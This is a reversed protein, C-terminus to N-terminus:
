RPVRDDMQVHHMVSEDGTTWTAWFRFRDMQWGDPTRVARNDYPGGITFVGGDRAHVAIVSCQFTATDGDLQVLFNTLTHQTADLPEVSPRVFGELAEYGEFVGFGVYDAHIGPTFCSRFLEWDKRDIGAGYRVMLEVVDDRDSM